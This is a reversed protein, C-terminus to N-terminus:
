GVAVCGLSRCLVARQDRSQKHEGTRMRAVSVAARPGYEAAFAPGDVALTDVPEPTFGPELHRLLRLFATAQACTLVRGDPKSRCM